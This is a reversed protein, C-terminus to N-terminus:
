SCKKNEVYTEGNYTIKGFKIIQIWCFSDNQFQPEPINRNFKIGYTKFLGGFQLRDGDIRYEDIDTSVQMTPRLITFFTKGTFQQEGIKLTCKVERNNKGDSWYFIINSKISTLELPSILVLPNKDANENFEKFITGPITWSYEDAVININKFQASLPVQSGVKVTKSKDTIDNMNNYVIIVKAVLGNISNIPYNDITHVEEHRGRVPADQRSSGRKTEKGGCGRFGNGGCECDDMGCGCPCDNGDKWGVVYTRSGKVSLTFDGADIDPRGGNEGCEDWDGTSFVM